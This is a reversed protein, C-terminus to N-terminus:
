GVSSSRSKPGEGGGKGHGEKSCVPATLGPVLAATGEARHWQLHVSPEMMFKMEQAGPLGRGMPLSLFHTYMVALRPSPSTPASLACVGLHPNINPATIHAQAPVM